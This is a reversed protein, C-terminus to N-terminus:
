EGKNRYHGRVKVGDKRTFGPVWYKDTLILGEELVVSILREARNPVQSYWRSNKMQKAAEQYDEAVLAAKLKKFQRLKPYGMNFAMNTVVNKVNKSLKGWTKSGVFKQADKISTKVDERFFKLARSKSIKDGLKLKDKPLVLHGVGVTPKGLHDNYVKLKLGEDRILQRELSDAM